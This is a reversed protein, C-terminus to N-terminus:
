IGTPLHSPSLVLSCHKYIYSEKIRHPTFSLHLFRMASNYKVEHLLVRRVFNIPAFDTWLTDLLSEDGVRTLHTWRREEM